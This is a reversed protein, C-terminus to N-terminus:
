HVTLWPRAHIECGGKFAFVVSLLKLYDANAYNVSPKRWPGVSGGQLCQKQYWRVTKWSLHIKRHDSKWKVVPCKCHKYAEALTTPPLIVNGTSNPAKLMQKFTCVNKGSFFNHMFHLKNAKMIGSENEFSDCQLSSNFSIQHLKAMIMAKM